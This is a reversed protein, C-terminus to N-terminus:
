HGLKVGASVTPDDFVGSVRVHLSADYNTALDVHDDDIGDDYVGFRIGAGTFYDWAETINIDVAASGTNHWQDGFLPDTPTFATQRAFEGAGSLAVTTAQDQKPPAVPEPVAPMLAAYSNTFSSSSLWGAKFAPVSASSGAILALYASIGQPPLVDFLLSRDGFGVVDTERFVVEFLGM